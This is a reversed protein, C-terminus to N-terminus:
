NPAKLLLPSVVPLGLDGGGRAPVAAAVEAVWGQEFRGTHIERATM